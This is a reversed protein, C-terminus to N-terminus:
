CADCEVDCGNHCWLLQHMSFPLQQRRQLLDHCPMLMSTSMVVVLYTCHWHLVVHASHLHGAKCGDEAAAVRVGAIACATVCGDVCIYLEHACERPVLIVEKRACAWFKVEFRLVGVRRYPAASQAIHVLAAHLILCCTAHACAIAPTM